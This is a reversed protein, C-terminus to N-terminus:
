LEQSFLASIYVTTGTQDPMDVTWSNGTSDQPWPISPAFGVPGTSAPLYMTHVINGASTCRIDLQTAATSNNTATIMILDAFTGASATLLTAETGTTLSVYATKILDRVQIPRMLARGLKDAKPRVDAGDSVATPNTTRAMLVFTSDLGGSALAVPFPNASTVIGDPTDLRVNVTNTVGTVTTVTTITGSNIVTSLATDTMHVVRVVGANTENLGTPVASGGWQTNNTPVPNSGSYQVGGSDTLAVNMSSTANTVLTFPFPNTGSYQVGSSDVISAATTNTISTVTLAVSSVVNVSAIANGAHVVRLATASDGNDVPNNVYVSAVADAANVVRLATAAVGTNVSLRDWSVGNFGSLFGWFQQLDTENTYADQTRQSSPQAAYYHFTPFLRFSAQGAAGNAYFIRMYRSAPQVSIVKGTAAPITYSDSVDWNSGDASQQIQFGNTSSAVDSIVMFTLSAYNMVDEATGTFEGGIGLVSTTSNLVSQVNLVGLVTTDLGRFDPNNVQAHSSVTSAQGDFVNVNQSAAPSFTVPLPNAQSYPNGSSDISQTSNNSAAVSFSGVVKLAGEVQDIVSAGSSTQIDRIAFFDGRGGTAGGSLGGFNVPKGAGDHIIVPFPKNGARLGMESPFNVEAPSVTVQPAPVNVIPAPVNVIPAKMEPFPPIQPFEPMNVQPIESKPVDVKLNKFADKVSTVVEKSLSSFLPTLQKTIEEGYTKTLSKAEGERFQKTKADQILKDIHPDRAM